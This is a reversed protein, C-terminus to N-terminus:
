ALVGDETFEYDNAHICEKIVEESVLYESEGQLIISYDELISKLFDAEIDQMENELDGSEYNESDENMYDSFIPNYEDLFTQATNYTDCNEGHEKLINAAVEVASLTFDGTAHRDRDLGFGYIKLGVRAADDYTLGWWDHSVNIDYLSEIAREQASESLEDFKYLVTEITRM